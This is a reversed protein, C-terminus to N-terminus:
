TEKLAQLHWLLNNLRREMEVLQGQKPNKVEFLRAIRSFQALATNLDVDPEKPKTM